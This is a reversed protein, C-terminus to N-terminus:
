DGAGRPAYRALFTAVAEDAVADSEEQTGGTRGGTLTLRNLPAALVLWTFQEAAAAPDDVRLLGRAALRALADALLGQNRDWSRRVYDDAVDPFRQAEAAVLTRMRLVPGSLVGAQLTGALARLGRGADDTAILADLHPRMADRGRDVWDRVVAAYLDDKSPYQRYLTQKSIRAGAAVADMTTGAFGRDLLLDRAIALLDAGSSGGPRGRLRPADPATDM